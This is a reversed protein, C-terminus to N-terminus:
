RKDALPQSDCTDLVGPKFYNAPIREASTIIANRADDYAIRREWVLRGDRTAEFVRGRESEAVLINGNDLIQHKGRRWSYFPTEKSDEILVETEDSQPDHRLIRSHDLGMRNDYVTITGDPQFDPDHQKFWPGHRYWKFRRTDPDIVGILNLERMSILLDGAEFQPFAEAMDAPLPEVDNAHFPDDLWDLEDKSELTRIGLSGLLDQAIVVDKRFDFGRLEKGTEADVQVLSEARLTWLSGAAGHHVSHHYAGKRSWMTEGCADIRALRRGADFAVVLSGDEFPVVGHLMVNFEGPGDPHLSEYDLSWHHLERGDAAYLTVGQLVERGPALGGILVHGGMAAAADHMVFVEKGPVRAPVLHRTPELALDNKWHESFEFWAGQVTRIQPHPFWGYIAGFSGFLVALSVASAFFVVVPLRDM